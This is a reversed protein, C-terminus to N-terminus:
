GKKEETEGGIFSAPPNLAAWEKVVAAKLEKLILLIDQLRAIESLVESTKINIERNQEELYKSRELDEMSGGQGDSM